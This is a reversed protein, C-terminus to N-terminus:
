LRFKEQLFKKSEATYVCFVRAALWSALLCLCLHAMNPITDYGFLRGWVFNCLTIVIVHLMYIEFSIGGLSVPLRHRLMRPVIGCGAGDAVAFWYILVAFPLWLYPAFRVWSPLSGYFLFPLMVLSLVAVDCVGVSAAPLSKRWSSIRDALPTQCLKCLLMGLTFDVIRLPPFAYMYGDIASDDFRSVAFLCVATYVVVAVLAAKLKKGSAALCRYVPPFLAYCFLLTGLFWSVGTGYDMMNKSMTFEQLMLLHLATKLVDFRGGAMLSLALAIWFTVFHLPYLKVLRRRLFGGYSFGDASVRGGYGYSLVFGSLMFFFTVGADGGYDFNAMSTNSSYHCLFILMCFVFRLTQLTRM